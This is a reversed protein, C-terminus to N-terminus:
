VLPGVHALNPVDFGNISSIELAVFPKADETM